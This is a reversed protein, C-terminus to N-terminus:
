KSYVLYYLKKMVINAENISTLDLFYYLSWFTKVGALQIDRKRREPFKNDDGAWQNKNKNPLFNTNKPFSSNAQLRWNKADIHETFPTHFEEFTVTRKKNWVNLFM